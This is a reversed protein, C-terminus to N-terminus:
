DEIETTPKEVPQVKQHVKAQLHVEERGNRVKTIPELGHVAFHVEM